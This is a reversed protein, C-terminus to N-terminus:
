RTHMTDRPNPPDPQQVQGNVPPTLAHDGDAGEHLRDNTGDQNALEPLAGGIPPSGHNLDVAGGDYVKDKTSLLKERTHQFQTTDVHGDELRFLKGSSINGPVTLITRGSKASLRHQAEERKIEQALAFSTPQSSSGRRVKLDVPVSLEYNSLTSGGVSDHETDQQISHPPSSCESFILSSPADLGSGGSHGAPTSIPAGVEEDEEKEEEGMTDSLALSRRNDVKETEGLEANAFDPRPPSLYARNIVSQGAEQRRKRLVQELDSELNSIRKLPAVGAGYRRMRQTERLKKVQVQRAEGLPETYGTAPSSVIKMRSNVDRKGEDFKM